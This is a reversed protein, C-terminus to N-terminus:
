YDVTRGRGSYSYQQRKSVKILPKLREFKLESLGMAEAFEEVSNFGGNSERISIAKKALISTIGPLKALEEESATNIDVVNKNQLLPPPPPSVVEDLRQSSQVREQKNQVFGNVVDRGCHKCVKADVLILEACHPCKKEERINHNQVSLQKVERMSQNRKKLFVLVGLAFYGFLFGLILWLWGRRNKKKAIFYCAIASIIWLFEV